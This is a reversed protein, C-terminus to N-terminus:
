SAVPRGPHTRIIVSLFVPNDCDEIMPKYLRNFREKNRNIYNEEIGKLFTKLATNETFEDLISHDM